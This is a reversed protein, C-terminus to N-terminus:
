VRGRVQDPSQGAYGPAVPADDHAEGEAFRRFNSDYHPVRREQIRPDLGRMVRRFPIAIKGSNMNTM